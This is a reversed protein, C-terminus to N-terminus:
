NSYCIYGGRGTNRVFKIEPMAGPFKLNPKITNEFDARTQGEYGNAVDKGEIIYFEFKSGNFIAMVLDLDTIKVASEPNKQNYLKAPDLKYKDIEIPFACYFINVYRRIQTVNNVIHKAILLNNKIDAPMFPNVTLDHLYSSFEAKSNSFGTIHFSPDSKSLKNIIQQNEFKIYASLDHENRFLVRFLELFVKRSYHRRLISTSIKKLGNLNNNYEFKEIFRSHVNFYNLLFQNQSDQTLTSDDFIINNFFLTKRGDHILSIKNNKETMGTNLLSCLEEEQAYNSIIAEQYNFLERKIGFIEIDERSVYYQLCKKSNHTQIQFEAVNRGILSLLFDDFKLKNAGARSTEKELYQIFRIRNSDYALSSNPSIYLKKSLTTECSDFFSEFDSSSPNFLNKYRVTNLLIKTIDVHFPFDSNFSDLYVFSIQRVKNFLWKLKRLKPEDAHMPKSFFQFVIKRIIPDQVNKFLFNLAVLYKMKYYDHSSFINQAFNRWTEDRNIENLFTNKEDENEELYQFLGVESALTGQLHGINAFLVAIQLIVLGSTQIGEDIKHNSSLGTRFIGDKLKLLIYFQLMVYDWRKHNNGPHSKSIFGLHDISKLYEVLNKEELIDYFEMSKSHLAIDIKGFKSLEHSIIKTM